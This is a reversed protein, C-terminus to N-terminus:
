DYHKGNSAVCALDTSIMILGVGPLDLDGLIAHSRRLDSIISM